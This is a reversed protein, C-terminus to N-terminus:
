RIVCISLDHPDASLASQVAVGSIEPGPMSHLRLEVHIVGTELLVRQYAM